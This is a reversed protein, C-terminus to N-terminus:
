FPSFRTLKWHGGVEHLVYPSNSGVPPSKGVYLRVANGHESKRRCIVYSPDTRSAILRLITKLNKKRATKFWYRRVHRESKVKSDVQKFFERFSKEEDKILLAKFALYLAGEPTKTTGSKVAERDDCNKYEKGNSSETSSSSSNSTSELGLSVAKDNGSRKRNRRDRTRNRRNRKNNKREEAEDRAYPDDRNKNLISGREEPADDYRKSCGFGALCFVTILGFIFASIKNM